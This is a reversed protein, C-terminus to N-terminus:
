PPDAFAEIDGLSAFDGIQNAYVLRRGNVVDTVELEFGVNSLSGIFVWFHGNIARGDLVKVVLELNAADFFWFTGSEDTQLQAQGSGRNGLFDTWRVRAAFRGGNLCLTTDDAVCAAGTATDIQEIRSPRVLRTGPDFRRSEPGADATRQGARSGGPFASVDGVSAFTGHPNFYRRAAGTTADSITIQYEVDSLAGYFVWFYANLSTADLVKVMAELNGPDFFWLAGTDGTLPLSTARGLGDNGRFVAEVLFREGQLCLAHRDGQCHNSPTTLDITFLERGHIGDDASFFLRQGSRVLDRPYSSWPGPHLDHVLHVMEDESDYFLLEYGTHPLLGHFYVRGQTDALVLDSPDLVPQGGDALVETTGGPTGDTILLRRALLPRATVLARGDPLLLTEEVVAEARALFEAQLTEPDIAVLGSGDSPLSAFVLMREATRGLFGGSPALALGPVEVREVLEAQLERIRYLGEGGVGQALFWIAGDLEVLTGDPALTPEEGAPSSVRWTGASSGDTRWLEAADLPSSRYAFLAVSASGALLELVGDTTFLPFTGQATGDSSWLSSIPPDGEPSPVLLLGGDIAIVPGVPPGDGTIPLLETGTTTGDTALYRGAQGERCFLLAFTEGDGSGREQFDARCDFQESPDFPGTNSELGASVFYDHREEDLVFVLRDGRVPQLQAPHSGREASRLPRVLTPGEGPTLLFLESGATADEAAFVLGAELSAAPLSPTLGTAAASLELTTGTVTGNTRWLDGDLLFTSTTGATPPGDIPSGSGFLPLRVQGAALLETAGTSARLSWLAADDVTFLLTQALVELRVACHVECLEFLPTSSRSSLRHRWLTPANDYPAVFFLDGSIERPEVVRPDAQRSGPVPYTGAATGNSIWLETRPGSGSRLEIALLAATSLRRASDVRGSAFTALLVRAEPAGSSGWLTLEDDAQHSFVIRPGAAVARFDLSPPFVELAQVSAAGSTPLRVNWVSIPNPFVTESGLVGGHWPALAGIGFPVAVAITGPVSGDSIVLDGTSTSVTYFRQDDGVVAFRSSAAALGVTGRITGDTSALLSPLGDDDFVWWLSTEVLDAAHQFICNQGSCPLPLVRTGSASGDTSWLRPLSGDASALFLAQRGFRRVGSVNSGPVFDNSGTALDRTLRALQSAAPPSDLLGTATLVLCAVKFGAGKKPLKPTAPYRRNTLVVDQTNAAM